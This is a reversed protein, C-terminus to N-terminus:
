DDDGFASLRIARDAYGYWRRRRFQNGSVVFKPQVDTKIYEARMQKLKEKAKGELIRSMNLNGQKAWWESLTFNILVSRDDFPIIPVENDSLPQVLMSYNLHIVYEKDPWIPFLRIKSTTQFDDGGLFDYNLIQVDLPVATANFPISGDRTYINPPGALMPWLALKRNFELVNTYDVEGGTVLSNDVYVQSLTDCDPPLAFEYQFLNFNAASNDEGVFVCDLYAAGDATDVGIIRYLEPSGTVNLTRNLYSSNLEIDSFTAVRSGNEVSVTGISIPPSFNFSRDFKRWNWNRECCIDMYYQNAADKLFQLDKPQATGAINARNICINLLDSFTNFM